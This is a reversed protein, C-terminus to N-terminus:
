KTLLRIALSWMVLAVFLDIGKWAAPKSLIPALSRASYGLVFFFVFSALIAGFAFIAPSEYQTSVTGLLVITDLYVHPNLWTLAFCTALVTRLSAGNHGNLKLHSQSTFARWAALAGYVLLFLAGAIVLAPELWAVAQLFTGFGGIGISILIADSVACFLCVALVHSRLLGRQIVYVNQAGIAVILSISLAFGSAFEYVLM